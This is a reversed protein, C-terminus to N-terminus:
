QVLIWAPSLQGSIRALRSPWTGGILAATARIARKADPQPQGAFGGRPRPVGPFKGRKAILEGRQPSVDKRDVCERETSEV